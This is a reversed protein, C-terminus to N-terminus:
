PTASITITPAGPKPTVKITISASEATCGTGLLLNTTNTATQKYKVKGIIVYDGVVKKDMTFVGTVADMTGADTVPAGAVTVTYSYDLAIDAPYATVAPFGTPTIVSSSKDGADKCYAANSATISTALDPLVIITNSVPDSTCGGSAADTQSVLIVEFSGVETFKTPATNSPYGTYSTTAGNKKIDWLAATSGPLNSVGLTLATNICTYYIASWATNSALLLMAFLCLKLLPKRTKM